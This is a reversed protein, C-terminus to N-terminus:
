EKGIVLERTFAILLKGSIDMVKGKLSQRTGSEIELFADSMVPNPYLPLFRTFIIGAEMVVINSYQVKGDKQKVALRYYYKAVKRDMDSYQYALSQNNAISAITSYNSGDESFEVEFGALDKADNIKWELSPIGNMMRGTFTIVQVPLVVGYSFGHTFAGFIQLSGSYIPGADTYHRYEPDLSNFQGEPKTFDWANGNPNKQIVAVNCDACPAISGPIIMELGIIIGLTQIHFKLGPLQIQGVVIWRGINPFLDLWSGLLVAPDPYLYPFYEATFNTMGPTTVVQVAMPRYVALGNVVKGLPYFYESSPGSTNFERTMQGNIFSGPGPNGSIPDAASKITLLGLGNVPRKAPTSSTNVIGNELTINHSIAVPSQLTLGNLIGSSNNVILNYFSETTNGITKISQASNGM